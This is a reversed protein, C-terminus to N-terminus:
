AINVVFEGSRAVCVSDKVVFCEVWHMGSYRTTETRSRSSTGSYFDGRLQGARFAEDGTNVVQWFVSYPKPCNTHAQFELNFGKRLPPGNSHFPTPRFGHRFFRATISTSYPSRAFAWNPARRHSVNFSLAGAVRNFMSRPPAQAGPVPGTYAALVRSAPTDGFSSRMRKDLETRTGSNLIADLDERLWDTWRFFAEPKQSEEDNWRDAFNENPNVPNEIIWKDNECRIVGSEQYNQLKDLLSALTNFVDTEESYARAALTNVIM